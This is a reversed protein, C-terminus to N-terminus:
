AGMVSPTEDATNRGQENPIKGGACAAYALIGLTSSNHLFASVVPSIKGAAAMLLVASNIGVAAKFTNDLVKGNGTALDRAMALKRLDDELLVVQASERALDAGDPMCIGVDASLLAPADNVGDGAFALFAGDAQLQKVIDAKDEPKLDYHVIDISGLTEAISLATEKHDGTLMVIQEVGREKLMALAEAAEPRLEDRLAIVGILHGAESVYLMTKGDQRFSHAMDDAGSCDVGEDDHLFHKSGVLVQKKNVYASVGHAVIFDVQSIRPLILKRKQAESVVARAVPHSYHEEAGAALALLENEKLSSFSVVDTVKLNGLTLTGTKDFVVTDVRAMNEFAQAGKLLVGNHGAAHMGSKVAVPAALKLACSYDVTLVSAARTLNRTVGYLLMGLGFTLPVLKDALEDSRKQSESQTRLSNELFRGIRAMSTETGVARASVKIRGDEVVVGSIVDDGASVHVPISEGTMSSQNLAADGDVVVGDVPLLEGVGCIVLDGIELEEVPIQVEHADREVWVNEVQPRLLSKLLDDSKRETWEEMYGGLGLMAAIANATFYDKRFLSFGVAAGDLVEVKVGDKVLTNLGELVIPLGLAYSTGQLVGHPLFPTAAAALAKGTVSALTMEEPGSGEPMFAEDPINELLHLVEARTSEAGDYEVVLSAAGRNIRVDSVGKRTSIVAELYDFDLTPDYMRNSKLRMRGPVEHVPVFSTSAEKNEVCAANM